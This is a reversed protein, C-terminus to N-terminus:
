GGAGERRPFPLPSLGKGLAVMQNQSFAMIGEMLKELLCGANTLIGRQYGEKPRTSLFTALFFARPHFFNIEIPATTRRTIGCLANFGWHREDDLMMSLEGKRSFLAPNGGKTM